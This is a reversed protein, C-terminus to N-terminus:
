RSLVSFYRETTEKSSGNFFLWGDPLEVAIYPPANRHIYVHSEGYGYVFFRGVFFRPSDGGHVKSAIPIDEMLSVSVIDETSFSYDMMPANIAAVQGDVSLTVSGFDLPLLYVTLGIWFGIAAVIVAYTVKGLWSALNATMGYGIRKEVMSRSDNPNNYFMAGFVWYEDEDIYVEENVLRMFRNRAKRVNIQALIMPIIIICSFVIYVLMYM